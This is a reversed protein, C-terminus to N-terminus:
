IWREIPIGMRKIEEKTLMSKQGKYFDISAKSIMYIEKGILFAFWGIGNGCKQWTDMSLEQNTEIRSLTFKDNSCVKCDILYAKANKVAIVDAPQGASNQALNHVWYGNSFLLECFEREFTNGIKRNVMPM